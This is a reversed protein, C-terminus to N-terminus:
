AREYEYVERINALYFKGKSPAEILAKYVDKPVELYQYVAGNRFVVVLIQKHFDYGVSEIGTSKVPVLKM